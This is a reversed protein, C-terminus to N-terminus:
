PGTEGFHWGADKVRELLKGVHKNISELALKEHGLATILDAYAKAKGDEEALEMLRGVFLNQILSLLGEGEAGRLERLVKKHVEARAKEKEVKEKQKAEQVEELPRGSAPDQALGKDLAAQPGEM